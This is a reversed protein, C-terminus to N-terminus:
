IKIGELRYSNMHAIAQVVCHIEYFKVFGYGKSSGNVHDRIVKAEFIIGFSSFMNVSQEEDMTPPLCGVHVNSHDTEKGHSNELRPGLGM